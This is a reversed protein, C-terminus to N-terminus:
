KISFSYLQGDGCYLTVRERAPDRMFKRVNGPLKYKLRVSGAQDLIYLYAEDYVATLGNSTIEILSWKGFVGGKEWLLQGGRNYFAIRNEKMEEDKHSIVRQYGVAVYRGEPDIDATISYGAIEKSWLDSLDARKMTVTASPVSRNPKAVVLAYEGNKSTDVSYLMDERGASLGQQVGNISYTCVGADQWTGFVINEGDKTFRASCPVGPLKWREYRHRNETMKYMYCYKEGTGVAFQGSEPSAAACWVAGDIGHHWKVEGDPAILHVVTEAPNLFSYALASANSAVVMRDADEIRAKWVTKGDAGICRLDGESCVIGTIKGDPSSTLATPSPIQQKWVLQIIPESIQVSKAGVNAANITPNNAASLLFLATCGAILARLYRLTWRRTTAPRLFAPNNQKSLSLVTKIGWVTVSPM